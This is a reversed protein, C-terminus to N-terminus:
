IYIAVVELECLHAGVNKIIAFCKVQPIALLDTVSAHYYMQDQLDFTYLIGDQPINQPSRSEHLFEVIARYLHELLWSFTNLVKDDEDDFVIEHTLVTLQLALQNISNCIDGLKYMYSRPRFSSELWENLSDSIEKYEKHLQDVRENDPWEIGNVFDEILKFQLRIDQYSLSIEKGITSSLIYKKTINRNDKKRRLLFNSIRQMFGKIGTSYIKLSQLTKFSNTMLKGKIVVPKGLNDVKYPSIFRRENWYAQLLCSKKEMEDILWNLLVSPPLKRTSKVQSEKEQENIKGQEGSLVGNFGLHFFSTVSLEGTGIQKKAKQARNKTIEVIEQADSYGDMLTSYVDYLRETDIYYPRLTYIKRCTKM